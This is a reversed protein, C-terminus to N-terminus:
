APVKEWVARIQKVGSGTDRSLGILERVTGAGLRKVLAKPLTASRRRPTM